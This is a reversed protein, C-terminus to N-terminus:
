GQLRRRDLGTSLLAIATVALVIVGSVVVARKTGAARMFPQQWTGSLIQM